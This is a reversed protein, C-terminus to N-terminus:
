WRWTAQRVRLPCFDDHFSRRLILEETFAVVHVFKLFLYYAPMLPFALAVRADHLRHSSYALVVLMQLLFMLSTILYALILVTANHFGEYVVCWLVAFWFVYVMGIQFFLSDLLMLANSLRFHKQWFYLLDIHKRCRNRIECTNWRRRQRFLWGWNTPVSTLCEAYPAFRVLYGAKLLKFTIDGDEGPGPDWGGVRVLAERRFASFAGSAISLINMRHSFMRGVFIGLLYEFAQVWSMVSKFPDRVLVCGSVAGVRPNRFPEVVRRIANPGLESDADVNVIIEAQTYRLAYNFSSSKGARRPKGLLRIGKRDQIFRRVLNFTQDTSGDDVVIIELKPYGGCLSDLTGVITDQENYGTLIVCVTPCYAASLDPPELRGRLTDWVCMCWQGLAYRPGYVLLVPGILVWLEEPFLWSIWHIFEIWM